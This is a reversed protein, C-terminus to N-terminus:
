NTPLFLRTDVYFGLATGPVGIFLSPRPEAVGTTGKAVCPPQRAIPAFFGRGRGVDTWCSSCPAAETPVALTRPEAPRGIWAM